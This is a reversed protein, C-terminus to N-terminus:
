RPGRYCASYSPKQSSPNKDNKGLAERKIKLENYYTTKAPKLSPGFIAEWAARDQQAQTRAREHEQEQEQMERVFDQGLHPIAGFKM